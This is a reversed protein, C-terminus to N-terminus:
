PSPLSPTKEAIARREVLAAHITALIDETQRLVDPSWFRLVRFGLSELYATRTNDHGTRFAHQEGDVEVVLRRSMCVFDCVYNGIPTQRRFQANDLQHRRLRSWLLM